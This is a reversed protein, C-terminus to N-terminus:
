SRDVLLFLYIAPCIYLVYTVDDKVLLFRNGTRLGCRMLLEPLTYAELCSSHLFGLLYSIATSYDLGLRCHRLGYVKYIKSAPHKGLM